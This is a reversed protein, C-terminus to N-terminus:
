TTKKRAARLKRDARDRKRKRWRRITHIRWLIHVTVASLLGFFLGMLTCGLLLPRWKTLLGTQFWEWSLEFYFGTPPMDLLIAGLKYAIYFFAPMTVPNTIWVLCASLPLNASFLIAALAAIVMQGPLPMFAVFVGIFFALTVSRRNLHWLNPEHIMPGLWRVSPHEKIADPHPMYRKFIKRPM